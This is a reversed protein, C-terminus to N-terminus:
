WDSAGDTYISCFTYNVSTTRPPDAFKKGLKCQIGVDASWDTAFKYDVGNSIYIYGMIWGFTCGTPETPLAGIFTPALSPIYGTAGSTTRATPDFGGTCVTWWSGLTTPYSGYSDYYLALALQVQILDSYRRADRAKARASNLSTLVISAIIGIIAIVVLLEILTFGKLKKSHKPAEMIYSELQYHHSIMM